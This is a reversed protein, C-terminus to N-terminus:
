GDGDFGADLTGGQSEAREAMGRLGLQSGRPASALPAGADNRVVLRVRDGRAEIELTTPAGAAHKRANTLAEQAIRVITTRHDPALEDVRPDVYALVPQGAARADEVIRALTRSCSRSPGSADPGDDLATRLAALEAQTTHTAEDVLDLAERARGPDRAALVDVVGAQIVILSLGHGVVDHLERAVDRRQGHVAARCLRDRQERLAEARGRLTLAARLDYRIARGVLWTGLLVAVMYAYVLGAFHYQESLWCIVTTALALALAVLAAALSRPWAGANYALAGCVFVQSITLSSLEDLEVRVLVFAAVLAVAAVPARRRLLLGCPTLVALAYGAVPSVASAPITLRVGTATMAELPLPPLEIRDVVGLAALGVVPFALGALGRWDVRRREAPAVADGTLTRLLGRLEDAARGAADAMQRGFGAAPADSVLAGRAQAILPRIEEVLGEVVRVMDRSLTRREDDVAAGVENAAQVYLTRVEGELRDVERQRSRLAVGPLVGAFVVASLYLYQSTAVAEIEGLDLVSITWLAVPVAAALALALVLRSRTAPAYAAVGFLGFALALEPSMADDMREGLAYQLLYAAGIAVAVVVPARRSLLLPVTVVLGFALAVWPSADGELLLPESIAWAIVVLAVRLQLAPTAPTM